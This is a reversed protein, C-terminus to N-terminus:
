LLHHQNTFHHGAASILPRVIFMLLLPAPSFISIQSVTSEDLVFRGGLELWGGLDFAM